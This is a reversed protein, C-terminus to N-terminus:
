GGLLPPGLTELIPLIPTSGPAPSPTSSPTTSPLQSPGASPLPTASDPTPSPLASGTPTSTQNLGDTPTATQMAIAGQGTARLSPAAQGTETAGTATAQNADPTGSALSRLGLGALLVLVAASVIAGLWRRRRRDNSAPAPALGAELRLTDMGARQRRNTVGPVWGGEAARRLDRWLEGATLYRDSPDKAMAREVVGQLQPPERELAPLPEHVHRFLVAAPTEGSPEFPKVGALAEYLVVGLSYIDTRADIEGGLVQEPAMYAPTGLLTGSLTATSAHAVRAIGFDTLVAEATELKEAETRAPGRGRRLLINAPKIDRHVIGHAHAHDLGEAVQGILRLVTALPLLRNSRHYAQLLKDLSPGDIFEMMIYPQGAAVDFDYVQVINPHRLQAVARAEAQFRRQLDPDDLLHAHLLKVAVKRGLTAHRGLYVDAMGGRGIRQGLTVGKLEPVESAHM